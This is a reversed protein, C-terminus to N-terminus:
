KKVAWGFVDGIAGAILDFLSVTRSGTYVAHPESSVENGFRDSSTITYMYTSAQDLGSVVLSHNLSYDDEGITKGAQGAGKSYDVESRALKNTKWSLVLKVEQKNKETFTEGRISGIELPEPSSESLLFESENGIAIEGVHFNESKYNADTLLPVPEGVATETKIPAAKGSPAPIGQEQPVVAEPFFYRQYLFYGVVGLALIILISLGIFLRDRHESTGWVGAGGDHAFVNSAGGNAM